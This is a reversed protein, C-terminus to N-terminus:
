IRRKTKSENRSLRFDIGSVMFHQNALRGLYLDTNTRFDSLLVNSDVYVILRPARTDAHSTSLTVGTTHLREKDGNVHNWVQWARQIDRIRAQSPGLVSGLLEALSRPYRAEDFYASYEPDQEWESM